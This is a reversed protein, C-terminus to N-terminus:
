VSNLNRLDFGMGPALHEVFAEARVRQIEDRVQEHVRGLHPVGAELRAAVRVEVLEPVRPRPQWVSARQWREEVEVFPFERPARRLHDLLEHGRVRSSSSSSSAGPGLASSPPLRLAPPAPPPPRLPSPPLPSRPVSLPPASFQNPSRRSRHGSRRGSRRRRTPPSPARRATHASPSDRTSGYYLSPARDDRAPTHISQLSAPLYARPGFTRGPVRPSFRGGGIKKTAVKYPRKKKEGPSM